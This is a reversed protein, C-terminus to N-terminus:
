AQRATRYNLIHAVTLAAVGVLTAGYESEHPLWLAVLMAGIGISGIALPLGAGHRLAGHGLALAAMVAAAVFGLEHVLPSLFVGGLSAFGAVLWLGAACHVICLASLAIAASDLQGSRSLRSLM